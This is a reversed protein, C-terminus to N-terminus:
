IGNALLARIGLLWVMFSIALVLSALKFYKGGADVPVVVEQRKKAVKKLEEEDVDETSYNSHWEYSAKQTLAKTVAQTEIFAAYKHVFAGIIAIIGGMFFFGGILTMIPKEHPPFLDMMRYAVWLLFLTGFNLALFAKIFFMQAPHPKRADMAGYRMQGMPSGRQGQIDGTNQ